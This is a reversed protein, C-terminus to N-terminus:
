TSSWFWNRWHTFVKIMPVMAIYLLPAAFSVAVIFKTWLTKIEKEKRLRDEDVAGGSIELAKYGAKNIADKLGSVRIIAPNYVVTAKETAINVSASEVGELKGLAKEVRASCAACTMGGVPITVTTGTMGGTSLTENKM